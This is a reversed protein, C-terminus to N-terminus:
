SNRRKRWAVAGGLLSALSMAVVQSAEPVAVYLVRVIAGNSAVADSGSTTTTGSNGAIPLRPMITEDFPASSTTGDGNIIQAQEGDVLYTFSDLTVDNVGDYPRGYAFGGWGPRYLITSLTVEADVKNVTYNGTTQFDSALTFQYELWHMGTMAPGILNPDSQMTKDSIFGYDPSIIGNFNDPVDYRQGNAGRAPWVMPFESPKPVLFESGHGPLENWEFITLTDAVTDVEGRWLPGGSFNPTITGRDWYEIGVIAAHVRAIGLCALVTALAALQIAKAAKGWISSKM